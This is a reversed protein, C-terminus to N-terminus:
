LRTRFNYASCGGQLWKVKCNVVPVSCCSERLRGRWGLQIGASRQGVEWGVSGWVRRMKQLGRSSSNPFSPLSSWEQAMHCLRALLRWKWSQRMSNHDCQFYNSSGPNCWASWSHLLRGNPWWERVRIPHPRHYPAQHSPFCAWLRRPDQLTPLSANSAFCPVSRDLM